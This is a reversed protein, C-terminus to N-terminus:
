GAIPTLRIEFRKDDKKTAVVQVKDEARFNNALWIKVSPGLVIRAQDTSVLRWVSSEQDKKDDYFITVPQTEARASLAFFPWHNPTLNIFGKRIHLGKLETTYTFTEEGRSVPIAPAPAVRRAQVPRRATTTKSKTVRKVTNANLWDILPSLEALMDAFVVPSNMGMTAVSESPMKYTLFLPTLWKDDESNLYAARGALETASEATLSGPNDKFLDQYHSVSEGEVQAQQIRLQWGDPVNNMHEYWGTADKEAASLIAGIAKRNTVNLRMEFTMPRAIFSFFPGSEHDREVAIYSVQNGKDLGFFPMYATINEALAEHLARAFGDLQSLAYNIAAEEGAWGFATFVPMTLGSFETDSM